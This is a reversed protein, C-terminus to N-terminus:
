SFQQADGWGYTWMVNKAITKPTSIPSCASLSVGVAVAAVAPILAVRTKRSRM